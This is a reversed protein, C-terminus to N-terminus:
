DKLVEMLYTLGLERLCRNYTQTLKQRRCRLNPFYRTLDQKTNQATSSLPRLDGGFDAM